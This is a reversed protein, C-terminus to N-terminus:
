LGRVFGVVSIQEEDGLAPDVLYLMKGLRLRRTLSPVLISFGSPGIPCGKGRRPRVHLDGLAFRRDVPYIMDLQPPPEAYGPRAVALHPRAVVGVRELQGPHRDHLRRRGRHDVADVAHLHSDALPRDLEPALGVAEDEVGPDLLVRFRPPHRDDGLLAVPLHEEREAVLM